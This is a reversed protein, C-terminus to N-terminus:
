LHQENLYEALRRMDDPKGELESYFKNDMKVYLDRLLSVTNKYDRVGKKDVLQYLAKAYRTLAETVERVEPDQIRHTELLFRAMDQHEKQLTAEISSGKLRSREILGHEVLGEHFASLGQIMKKNFGCLPM